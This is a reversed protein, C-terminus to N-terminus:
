HNAGRQQMLYQVMRQNDTRLRSNESVLLGFLFFLICVICVGCIKLFARVHPSHYLGRGWYMACAGCWKWFGKEPNFAPLSDSSEPSPETNQEPQLISKISTLLTIIKNLKEVKTDENSKIVADLSDDAKWFDAVKKNLEKTTKDISKQPENEVKSFTTKVSYEHHLFLETLGLCVADSLANVFERDNKQEAQPVAIIAQEMTKKLDDMDIHDKSSTRIGM